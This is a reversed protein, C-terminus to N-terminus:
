RVRLKGQGESVVKLWFDEADGSWLDLIPSLTERQCVAPDEPDALVAM